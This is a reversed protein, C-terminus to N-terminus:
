LIKALNNKYFIIIKDIKVCLIKCVLRNLIDFTEINLNFLQINKILRNYVTDLFLQDGSISDALAKLSENDIDSQIYSTYPDIGYSKINNNLKTIPLLFCGNYVGIEVILLNSKNKIYNTYIDLIFNKPAAGGADKVLSDHINDIEEM